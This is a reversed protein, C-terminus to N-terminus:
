TGPHDSHLGDGTSHEHLLIPRWDRAAGPRDRDEGADAKWRGIDDRELGAGLMLETVIQPDTKGSFDYGNLGGSRGFVDLLSQGFWKRLAPGGRILTGDIDFLALRIRGNASRDSPVTM